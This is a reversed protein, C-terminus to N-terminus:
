ADLQWGAAPARGSRVSDGARVPRVNKGPAHAENDELVPQREDASSFDRTSLEYAPGSENFEPQVDRAM